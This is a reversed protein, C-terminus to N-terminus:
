ASKEKHDTRAASSIGHGRFRDRYEAPAVHLNRLFARRMTESSGFGCAVAIAEVGGRTEELKRRAAEVRTTEVFRAPTSGV